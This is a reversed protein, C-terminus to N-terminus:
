LVLLPKVDFTGRSGDAFTVDLSWDPRAILDAITLM